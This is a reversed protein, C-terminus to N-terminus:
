CRGATTRNMHSKALTGSLESVFAPTGAEDWLQRLQPRAQQRRTLVRKSFLGGLNRSVSSGNWSWKVQTWLWEPTLPWPRYSLCPAFIQAWLESHPCVCTTQTEEFTVLSNNRLLASSCTWSRNLSQSLFSFSDNFVILMLYDIILVVKMLSTSFGQIHLLLWTKLNDHEDDRM